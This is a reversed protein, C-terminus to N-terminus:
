SVAAAAIRQHPRLGEWLVPPDAAADTEAVVLMAGTLAPGRAVEVGTVMHEGCPGEAAIWCYLVGLTRTTRDAAPDGIHETAVGSTALM